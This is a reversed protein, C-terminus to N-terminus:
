VLAFLSAAFLIVVPASYTPSFFRYRVQKRFISYDRGRELLGEECTARLLLGVALTCTVVMNNITPLTLVVCIAIHLYAAYIPHRVFTYPGSTVVSRQSPFIGFSRRMTFLSWILVATYFLVAAILPAAVYTPVYRDTEGPFELFAMAPYSLVMGILGSVPPLQPKLAPSRFILILFVFAFAVTGDLGLLGNGYTRATVVVLTALILIKDAWPWFATCLDLLKRHCTFLGVQVFSPSALRSNAIMATFPSQAQYRRSPNRLSSVDSVGSKDSSGLGGGAAARNTVCLVALTALVNIRFM